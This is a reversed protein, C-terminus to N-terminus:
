GGVTLQPARRRLAWFMRVTAKAGHSKMGPINMMRVTSAKLATPSPRRSAASGYLHTDASAAQSVGGSVSARPALELDVISRNVPNLPDVAYALVGEIREYAGADGFSRGGFHSRRQTVEARVVAM